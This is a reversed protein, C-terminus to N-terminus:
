ALASVSNLTMSRGIAGVQRLSFTNRLPERKEVVLKKLDADTSFRAWINSLRGGFHKHIRRALAPPLLATLPEMDKNV